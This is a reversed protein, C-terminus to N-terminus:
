TRLRREQSLRMQPVLIGKEGGLLEGSGKLFLRGVLAATAADLENNTMKQSLGRIGLNKLGQLLGKLDRHQRPISWIDQAAGPYCEIARYGMKEFQENLALGRETLMRMTGLTIPPFNIRRRQLERDCERLHEDTVDQITKRGPPLSLPADIPILDPKAQEIAKLIQKDDYAVETSGKMGRLICIGTPSHPSSALDIGVIVLVKNKIIAM